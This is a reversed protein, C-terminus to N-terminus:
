RFFDQKFNCIVPKDRLEKRSLKHVLAMLKAETFQWKEMLMSPKWHSNIYARLEEITPKTEVGVEGGYSTRGQGKSYEAYESATRVSITGVIIEPVIVENEKIVKAVAQYTVKEDETSLTNAIEKNSFGEKGMQIMKETDAM